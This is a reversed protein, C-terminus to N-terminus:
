EQLGAIRKPPVTPISEAAAERKINTANKSKKKADNQVKVNKIVTKNLFEIQKNDRKYYDNIFNLKGRTHIKFLYISMNKKFSAISISRGVSALANQVKQESDAFMLIDGSADWTCHGKEELKRITDLWSQRPSYDPPRDINGPDRGPGQGYSM